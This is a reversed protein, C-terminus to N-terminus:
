KRTCPCEQFYDLQYGGPIAAVEIWYGTSGSFYLKREPTSNEESYEAGLQQLRKLASDKTHKEIM